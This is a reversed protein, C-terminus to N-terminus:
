RQLAGEWTYTRALQAFFNWMEASADIDAGGSGFQRRHEADRSGPWDHGGERLGHVLLRLRGGADHCALSRRSPASAIAPGSWGFHCALRQASREVGLPWRLDSSGVYANLPDRMGHFAIIPAPETADALVPCQFGGVLGAGCIRDGLGVVLHSALRAGGSFGVLFVPRAGPALTEILRAIFGVDDPLDGRAEAEGFLPVGPVHWAFGPRGEGPLTFPIAAEPAALAFGHRAALRYLASCRMQAESTLGSGHLEVVLPPPRRHAAPPEFLRYRREAGGHRFSYCTGAM